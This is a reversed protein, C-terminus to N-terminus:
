PQCRMVVMLPKDTKRALAKGQALSMTWGYQTPSAEGRRGGKKQALAPNDASVLFWCALLALLLRKM